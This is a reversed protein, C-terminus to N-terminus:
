KMFFLLNEQYFLFWIWLKSRPIHYINHPLYLLFLLISDRMQHFNIEWYSSFYSFFFFTLWIWMLFVHLVAIQFIYIWLYWHHISPSNIQVVVSVLLCCFYDFPLLKDYRIIKKEKEWREEWRGNSYEAVFFFYWWFNNM